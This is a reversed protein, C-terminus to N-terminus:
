LPGSLLPLSPISGMGWLKLVLAVGDSLKTDYGPCEPPNIFGIQCVVTVGSYGTHCRTQDRFYLYQFYHNKTSWM